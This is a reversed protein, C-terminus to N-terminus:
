SPLYADAVSVAVHRVGNNAAHPSAVWADVLDRITLAPNRVLAELAISKLKALLDLGLYLVKTDLVLRTLCEDPNAGLDALPNVAAGPGAIMMTM